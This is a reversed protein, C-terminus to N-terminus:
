AIGHWWSRAYVDFLYAVILLTALCNVGRGLDRSRGISESSKIWQAVRFPAPTLWLCLPAGGGADSRCFGAIRALKLPTSSSGFRSWSAGECALTCRWHSRLGNVQGIPLAEIHRGDKRAQEKLRGIEASMVIGERNSPSDHDVGLVAVVIFRGRTRSIRRLLRSFPAETCVLCRM